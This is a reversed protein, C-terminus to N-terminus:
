WVDRRMVHRHVVMERTALTAGNGADIVALYRTEAKELLVLYVLNKHLSHLNVEKCKTGPFRFLAAKEAAAPTIKAYPALIQAYADRGARTAKVVTDQTIQVSSVIHVPAVRAGIPAGPHGHALTPVPWALFGFATVIAGLKLTHLLQKSLRNRFM